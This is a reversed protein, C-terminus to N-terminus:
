ATAELARVYGAGYAARVFGFAVDVGSEDAPVVAWTAPLSALLEDYKDDVVFPDVDPDGREVSARIAAAQRARESPSLVALVM